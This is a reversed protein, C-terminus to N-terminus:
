NVLSTRSTCSVECVEAIGRVSTGSKKDDAFNFYLDLYEDYMVSWVILDRNFATYSVLILESDENIKGEWEYRYM